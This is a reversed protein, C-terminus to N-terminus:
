QAARTVTVEGSALNEPLIRTTEGDRWVVEIVDVSRADGLGFHAAIPDFSMFGGSANVARMQCKGASASVHTTGDTCITVRAGVGMSNGIEDRLHVWLASGSPRDNRHVIAALGDPPRIVDVDGDRDFDVSVFSFSPALDFFGFDETKDVFQGAENKYFKNTTSRSPALWIGTMVLLDQWGDQDLDIFRSNWTWGPFNVQQAAAQDKFPAGQEGTMLVNGSQLAPIFLAEREEKNLISQTTMKFTECFNRTFPWRELAAHCAARADEGSLTNDVLSQKKLSRLVQAVGCVTRDRESMAQSTCRTSKHGSSMGRISDTSLTDAACARTREDSWGLDQAFQQCIRLIRGDGRMAEREASGGRESIQGGYYDPILDNNWDGEDFSMTTNMLYPFPQLDRDARTSGDQSFFVVQDTGAVDDGKLLDPQGDRDIDTILTTLTQGAAGAIEQADFGGTGDNWLIQNTTAKPRRRLWSVTGQASAYNGLLIDLHGDGNMDGFAMAHATTLERNEIHRMSQASFQGEQNYLIYLGDWYTTVVLDLWGDNDLDAFATSSVELEALAGLDIHQRKFTGGINAYLSLGRAGTPRRLAIDPWGDNHVDGAAIGGLSMGLAFEHIPTNIGVDEFGLEAGPIRTFVSGAADNVQIKDPMPLRTFGIRADNESTISAAINQPTLTQATIQSQLEALSAGLPLPDIRPLDFGPRGELFGDMREVYYNQEFDGTKKAIVGGLVALFLIAVWVVLAARPSVARWLIFFAYISYSGLGIIIVTAYQSTIGLGLLVITLVVDFAIPAPVFSAVIALALMSALIPLAGARPLAEFLTASDFGMAVIAGLMAALFMMPVTIVGIFFLNRAYTRMFWGLALALNRPPVDVDTPALSRAFWASLGRAETAKAMAAFGTKTAETEKILVFKCLLPVVILVMFLALGLKTAAIHLPLLSFSMTIVIFNLTPSSILASLTTELRMRGMHLGFAIPAACNVCVGLPAGIATGLAANAFSGEFSRKRILSLLTVVAAGFLVGFTMGKINTYVWNLSNAIFQWWMPSDPFIDFLIDFALGSLPADGGM